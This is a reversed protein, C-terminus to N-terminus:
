KKAGGMINKAIDPDIIKDDVRLLEPINNWSYGYSSERYKINKLYKSVAKGSFSENSQPDYITLVNNADKTITVIHGTSKRGKRDFGLHYRGGTKMSDKLMNEFMKADLKEGKRRWEKKDFIYNPIGNAKPDIWAMNTSKSLMDLTPHDSDNPFTDVDFGRLRAEYVVVCSQCNESYPGGRGGEWKPNVHGSDAEDHTMPAGRKVGAISDPYLKKDLEIIDNEASKDVPKKYKGQGINGLGDVTVRERQQPLDM